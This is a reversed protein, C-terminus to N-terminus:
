LNESNLKEFYEDWKKENEVQIKAADKLSFEEGLENAKELTTHILDATPYNINIGVSRLANMVLHQPKEYDKVKVEKM